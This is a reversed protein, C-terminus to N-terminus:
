ESLMTFGSFGPSHTKKGNDIPAGIVLACLDLAHTQQGTLPMAQQLIDM